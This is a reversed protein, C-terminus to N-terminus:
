LNLQMVLPLHDSTGDRQYKFGAYTCFPKVGGYEADDELLFKPDHIRCASLCAMLSTSLFIHDITQWDGKYRYSGRAGNQGVAPVADHMQSQEFCGLSAGGSPENFDGAVLIRAQGDQGRISDIAACLRQLITRRYREAGTGGWQSPAHVVFVHLPQFGATQGAVYLIDRSAHQGAVPEVRISYSTDPRFESPQYLLAVDIGRPDPSNTIAYDYRANRLLSWRTLHEAVSDNEVECLAVLSPLREGDCSLIAKAVNNVKQWYRSHSWRRAGDPLYETDQKLSDHRCDFLNECNYEVVTFVALLLATLM